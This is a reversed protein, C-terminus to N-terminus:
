ASSPMRSLSRDRPSPSTYLLCSELDLYGGVTPNFGDPISTVSRLDLWGPIKAEGRFQEMTIGYRECFEKQQKELKNM